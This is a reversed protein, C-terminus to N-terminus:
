PHGPESLYKSILDLLKQPQFPKSLYDDMGASLCNEKDGIMANATIAIIPTHKSTSAEIDRIKRSVTIGDMVPLRIDMLIVDYNSKGFMDLAEKGDFATDINKVKSGLSITVIKQNTVNDEVLLINADALSKTRHMGTDLKRIKEGIASVKSEESVNDLPLSFTFVTRGDKEDYSYEGEMLHIIKGSLSGEITDKDVTMYTDGPLIDTEMLFEIVDIKDGHSKLLVSINIEAEESGPISSWMSFIDIFIQKIAIPDGRYEKRITNDWSLESDIRGTAEIDLLEITNDITKRLDFRINKRPVISIEGASRMTLENLASIMNNTSSILTDLLEKQKSSVNLDCLLDNILPLNNLPTRIRHSFDAIYSDKKNLLEHMRKIEERSEKMHGKTTFFIIISLFLSCILLIISTVWLELLVTATTGALLVVLIVPYITRENFWKKFVPLLNNQETKNDKASKIGMKIFPIINCSYLYSFEKKGKM